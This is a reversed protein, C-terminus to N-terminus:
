NNEDEVLKLVKVNVKKSKNIQKKIKKLDVTRKTPKVLELVFPRYDLERADIDARGAGHFASRKSESAKLFPKEVIEQVSTPYLQGTGKCTICGKGDCDRCIWKTQPIGRVMKNYRGYVYLSRTEFRVSNIKLDVVITVDPHKLSFKAQTLKEVRKGLERNIESKIAEVDEIGIREWLEDQKKAIENPVISGILFTKFEIDHVKKAIDNAVKELQDKFFNNCLKCVAPEEM